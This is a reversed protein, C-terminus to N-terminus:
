MVLNLSNWDIVVHRIMLVVYQKATRYSTFFYVLSCSKAASLSLCRLMFNVLGFYPKKSSDEAFFNSLGIGIAPCNPNKSIFSPKIFPRIVLYDQM